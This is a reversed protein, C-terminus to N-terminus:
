RLAGISARWHGRRVVLVVRAAELHVALVQRAILKNGGFRHRRKPCGVSCAEPADSSCFLDRDLSDVQAIARRILGEVIGSNAVSECRSVVVRFGALWRQGHEGIETVSTDGEIVAALTPGEIGSGRRDFWSRVRVRIGGWVYPKPVRERVDDLLPLHELDGRGVAFPEQGNALAIKDAARGSSVRDFLDGGVAVGVPVPLKMGRVDGVRSRLRVDPR